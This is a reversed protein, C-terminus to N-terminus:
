GSHGKSDIRGQVRLYLDMLSAPINMFVPLNHFFIAASAPQSAPINIFFLLNNFFIM